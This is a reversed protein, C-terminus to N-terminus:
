GPRWAGIRNAARGPGAIDICTGTQWLVTFGGEGDLVEGAALDRKATAMVDANFAMPTGTPEARLAANLISVNLELGIMHVPRYFHQM